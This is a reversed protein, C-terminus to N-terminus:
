LYLYCTQRTDALLIVMKFAFPRLYFKELLDNEKLTKIYKHCAFLFHVETEDADKHRVFLFHIEAEDADKRVKKKIPM